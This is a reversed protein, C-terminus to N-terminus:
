PPTRGRGSPARGAADAVRDDSGDHRVETQPPTERGVADLEDLHGDAVPVNEVRELLVVERESTLLRPVDHEGPIRRRAVAREGARQQEVDHVAGAVGQRQEGTHHLAERLDKAVHSHTVAGREGVVLREQGLLLRDAGLQSGVPADEHPHRSGLRHHADHDLRRAHLARLEDVSRSTSATSRPM